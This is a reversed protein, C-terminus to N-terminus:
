PQTPARATLPLLLKGINHCPKCGHSLNDSNIEFPGYLHFVAAAARAAMLDRADSSRRLFRSDLTITCSIAFITPIGAKAPQLRFELSQPRITFVSKSPIFM